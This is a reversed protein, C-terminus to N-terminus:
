MIIDISGQQLGAEVLKEIYGFIFEVNPQSYAFKQTHYDIYGRAFELQEQTMDVGVVHGSPGVLKSLAFCDRGSGSGLDLISCGEIAEPIAPGCGYYRVTVEDHVDDFAERVIKRVEPSFTLTTVGTACSDKTRVEKGYYDKMSEIVDLDSSAQPSNGCSSM